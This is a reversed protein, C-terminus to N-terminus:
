QVAHESELREALSLTPDDLRVETLDYREALKAIIVDAVQEPTVPGVEDEVSGATAPEWDLGLARYTPLLAERVLGSDGVVIVAGRHAAGAILRQGTGALKRTRRANVSWAGPCYEGRIEGIRADVGLHSLAEKLLEALERFRAETRAAPRRDPVAWSLALTREHYVAARGGALRVVPEFGVARAARVADGFGPSAADQKSFALIRGPRHLRFTAPAEGAAVRMLTARAVATSHAGRGPLRQRSLALTETM